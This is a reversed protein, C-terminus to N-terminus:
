CAGRRSLVAPLTLFILKMDLLFSQEQRYKIDLRVWNDFSKDHRAYVQWICTIGPRMELRYNHWTSYQDVEDMTPPRPGVMSMEGKLVNIFQPLEDLSWQRLIKGLRTVRPDEAIKFVPGSCENFPLLEPKMEEAGLKMTRFKLMTFPVGGLGARHQKYFVPGKSTLRVAIAIICMLPSLAILAVISLVIDSLRKLGSIKHFFVPQLQKAVKTYTVRRQNSLSASGSSSHHCVGARSHIRESNYYEIKGDPYTSISIQQLIKPPCNRQIRDVFQKAEHKTSNFLLLGISHNDQWGIEDTLRILNKLYYAFNDSDSGPSQPVLKFSVVSFVHNNRDARAKEKELIAQFVSASNIISNETISKRSGKLLRKYFPQQM